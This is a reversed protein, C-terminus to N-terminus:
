LCNFIKIILEDALYCAYRSLNLDEIARESGVGIGVMKGVDAFDSISTTYSIEKIMSLSFLSSPKHVLFLVAPLKSFFNTNRKFHRIKYPRVHFLNLLRCIEITLM